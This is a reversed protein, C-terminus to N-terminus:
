TIERLRRSRLAEPISSLNEINVTLNISSWLKPSDGVDMWKGCILMATCLDQPPLQLFIRELIEAPFMDNINSKNM